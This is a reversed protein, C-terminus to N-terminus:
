QLQWLSTELSSPKGCTCSLWFSIWALEQPAAVGVASVWLWTLLPAVPPVIGCADHPHCHWDGEGVWTNRHCLHPCGGRASVTILLIGAPGVASTPM